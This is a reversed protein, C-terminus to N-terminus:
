SSGSLSLLRIQFSMGPVHLLMGCGHLLSSPQLVETNAYLIDQIHSVYEPIHSASGRPGIILCLWYCEFMVTQKTDGVAPFIASACIAVWM